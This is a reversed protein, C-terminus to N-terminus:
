QTAVVRKDKKSSHKQHQWSKRPRRRVKRAPPDDIGFSFGCSCLAGFIRNGEIGLDFGDKPKMGCRPCEHDFSVQCILAPEGWSIRNNESDTSEDVLRWQDTSIDFYARKVTGGM